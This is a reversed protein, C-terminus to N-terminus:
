EYTEEGKRHIKKIAGTEHVRRGHLDPSIHKHGQKQSDRICVSDRSFRKKRHNEENAEFRGGNGNSKIQGLKMGDKRQSKISAGM